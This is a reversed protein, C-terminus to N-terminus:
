NSPTAVKEEEEEKKLEEKAKRDAIKKLAFESKYVLSKLENNYKSEPYEDLFNQYATLTNRYREEKKHEVSNYALLYHSKVTLYDLEEKQAIEPFQKIANPLMVIASKYEGTNYYLKAGKYAKFSLKGRLKDILMNCDPIYKSDPYVTVFLNISEIAKYTDTQDLYYPQSELYACYSTMYLSEEAWQGTPFNEYYAKFQFGALAHNKLAYNCYASYYLVKEAMATGNFNDQLQEFLTVARYYDKKNYYYQALELKKNVDPNKLTKQYKSCAGLFVILLSLFLIKVAKM